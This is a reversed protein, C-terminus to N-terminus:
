GAGGKTDSVAFYAAIVMFLTAWDVYHKETLATGLAMLLAILLAIIQCAKNLM